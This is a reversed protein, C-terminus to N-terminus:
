TVIRSHCSGTRCGHRRDLLFEMKQELTDNELHGAGIEPLPDDGICHKHRNHTMENFVHVRANAKMKAAETNIVRVVRVYPQAGKLWHPHIGDARNEEEEKDDGQLLLNVPPHARFGEIHGGDEHSGKKNGKESLKDHAQKQILWILLPNVREPIEGAIVPGDQILRVQDVVKPIGHQYGDAGEENEGQELAPQGLQHRM